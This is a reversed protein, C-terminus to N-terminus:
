FEEKLMGMLILNEYKGDIYAAQRLVGEKKFGAKLYVHYARKNSGILHLQVRNLNLDDFAFKTLLKVAQTGLGKDRYSPEGIRIQLEASRSIFDIAHLQCTGIIKNTKSLKISFIVVDSSKTINEFWANHQSEHVPMYASNLLREPRENIWKFLLSVDDSTLPALFIEKTRLM